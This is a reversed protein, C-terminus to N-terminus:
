READAAPADEGAPQMGHNFEIRREASLLLPTRTILGTESMQALESRDQVPRSDGARFPITM